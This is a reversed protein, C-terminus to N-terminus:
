RRCAISLCVILTRLAAASTTESAPDYEQQQPHACNDPTRVFRGHAFDLWQDLHHDM